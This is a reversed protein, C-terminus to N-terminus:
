LLAYSPRILLYHLHVWQTFLQQLKENAYNICLQEFSNVEFNEFGFVDLFGVFLQPSRKAVFLSDQEVADAAPNAMGENLKSVLWDFIGSFLGKALADRADACQQPTLPVAYSSGRGSAVHRVTLAEGLM